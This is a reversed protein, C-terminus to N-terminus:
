CNRPSAGARAPNLLIRSFLNSIQGNMEKPVKELEVVKWQLRELNLKMHKKEKSFSDRSAENYMVLQSHKKRPSNIAFDNTPIKSQQSILAQM